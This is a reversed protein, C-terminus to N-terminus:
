MHESRVLEIRRAHDGAHTLRLRITNEPLLAEVKEPWEIITLGNGYFYDEFGLEYFEDPHKTRYADFHYIDLAPSRYENLITFTPSNVNDEPIGAAKAIGKVLHTKGAGLDGYLALVDGRKLHEGLKEGLYQTEEPSHTTRPLLGEANLNQIHSKRNV